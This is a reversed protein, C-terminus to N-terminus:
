WFNQAIKIAESETLLESTVSYVDSNNTNLWVIQINNNKKIMTAPFDQILISSVEADETDFSQTVPECRNLIVARGTNDSWKEWNENYTEGKSELEFGQPLWEIRIIREEESPNDYQFIFDSHTEFEHMFANAINARLDPYLAFVMVVLLILVCLIVAVRYIIRGATRKGRFARRITKLGRKYVAEPLTFSPDAKLRENEAILRKGEKKAVESMVAHFFVDDYQEYLDEKIGM